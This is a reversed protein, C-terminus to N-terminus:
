RMLSLLVMITSNLLSPRRVVMMDLSWTMVFYKNVIYSLTYLAKHPKRTEAIFCGSTNYAFPSLRLHRRLDVENQGILKFLTEKACWCVLLHETEHGADIMEEEEPCLFRSRVKHVRDSLYEVDIGVPFREDLIVAVYGKTHSISIYLKRDPLYPAGNSRYAIRPEEGLLEKLLVRVALWEQRRRESQIDPPLPPHNLRSLLKETSEEMKWVGWFPNKHTLFLAM